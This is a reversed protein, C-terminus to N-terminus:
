LSPVETCLAPQSAGMSRPSWSGDQWESPSDDRPKQTPEPSGFEPRWAQLVLEKAVFRGLGKISGTEM